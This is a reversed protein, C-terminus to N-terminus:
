PGAYRRANDPNCKLAVYPTNARFVWTADGKVPAALYDPDTLEFHYTLSTGDAAPTLREVLHKKAGSPVGYGNGILHGAFRATDIVLSKGEWHGISHGQVSPPAGEHTAVSMYVTRQAGDFEGDILLFGDGKTIRKLDPTIMFVPAPNPVCQAGPNMTREDFNKAAVKGRATLSMKDPDLQEDLKPALLTVWVGDMGADTPETGPTTRALRAVEGNREFLTDSGRIVDDPLLKYSGAVRAPHGRVTVKDGPHLTNKDWGLRRLISPPSGEIEWEVTKGTTLIQDVYIYVHPNAWEYRTVRGDVTIVKKDDYMAGSHHGWAFPPMVVLFVALAVWAFRGKLEDVSTTM